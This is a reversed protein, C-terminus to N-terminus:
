NDLSKVLLRQISVIVQHYLKIILMIQIMDHFIRSRNISPKNNKVKIKFKFSSLQDLKILLEETM